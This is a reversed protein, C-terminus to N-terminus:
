HIRDFITKLKCGKNHSISSVYHIKGLLYARFDDRGARNQSELGHRVCNTLIAKLQDYDRRDINIKQNVVIGTLKQRQHAKICRSKRYNLEFGEELCISGVLPAFFGWDRYTNGSFAMDDAYRSYQLHLSQALGQLRKDLQYLAANSLAPSSPAGQPLHRQKIRKRQPEDLVHFLQNEMHCRHTTLGTLYQAVKKSYGLGLFISYVQRWQITQFCHALDFQFLYHKAIHLQAHTRCSRNERFGHASSHITLQSLIIDHIQRQAQKLVSKPSEILRFGGRRKSVTSYHYHQLRKDTNKDRRKYEVLWDLETASLGLWSALDGVTALVPLDISTLTDVQPARLNFVVSKPTDVSYAFWEKIRTQQQLFDDILALEPKVPFAQLLDNILEDVDDPLHVVSEISAAILTTYHWESAEFWSALQQCFIKRQSKSM